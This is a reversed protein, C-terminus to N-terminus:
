EIFDVIKEVKFGKQRLKNVVDGLLYNHYFTYFKGKKMAEKIQYKVLKYQERVFEKEKREGNKKTLYQIRKINM